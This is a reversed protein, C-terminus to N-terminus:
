RRRRASSASPPATTALAPPMASGNLVGPGVAAFASGGAVSVVLLLVTQGVELGGFSSSNAPPLGWVACSSVVNALGRCTISAFVLPQGTVPIVPVGIVNVAGELPALPLNAALPAVVSVTPASLEPFAVAGANVALSVDPVYVIVAV